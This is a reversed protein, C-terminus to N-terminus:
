SKPKNLLLYIQTKGDEIKASLSTGLNTITKGELGGVFDGAMIDLKEPTSEDYTVPMADSKALSDRYFKSVQEVSDSTAMHAETSSFDGLDKTSQEVIESGPYQPAYDPFESANAPASSVDKSDASPKEQGDGKAPKNANQGCALLLLPITLVMLKKMVVEM